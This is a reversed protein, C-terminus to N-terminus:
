PLLNDTNKLAKKFVWFHLNQKHQLKWISFCRIYNWTVWNQTKLLFWDRSYRLLLLHGKIQYELTSKGGQADDSEAKLPFQNGPYCVSCGRGILCSTSPPFSVLEHLTKIMQYFFHSIWLHFIVTSFPGQHQSAELLCFICSTKWHSELHSQSQLPKLSTTLKPQQYEHLPGLFETM